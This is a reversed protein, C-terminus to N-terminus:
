RLEGPLVWYGRLYRFRFWFAFDMRPGPAQPFRLGVSFFINQNELVASYLRRSNWTM